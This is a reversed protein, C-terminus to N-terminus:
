IFYAVLKLPLSKKLLKNSAMIIVKIPNIKELNNSSNQQLVDIIKCRVLKGVYFTSPWEKAFCYFKEKYSMSEFESRLERYPEALENKIDVLTIIRWGYDLRMLERSFAKLDLYDLPSPDKHIDLLAQKTNLSNLEINSDYDLADMAMKRAWEYAEPHVRTCDLFEVYKELDDEVNQKKMQKLDFKIFGSCNILVNRDLHCKSSLFQRNFVVPIYNEKSKASKEAINRTQHQTLVKLIHRAHDLAM